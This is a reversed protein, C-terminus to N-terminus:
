MWMWETAARHVILNHKTGSSSQVIGPKRDQSDVKTPNALTRAYVVVSM